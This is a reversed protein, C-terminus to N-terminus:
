LFACVYQYGRSPTRSWHIHLPMGLLEAAFNKFLLEHHGAEPCFKKERYQTEM